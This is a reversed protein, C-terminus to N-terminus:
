GCMIRNGTNEHREMPLNLEFRSIIYGIFNSDTTDCTRVAMSQIDKESFSFFFNNGSM